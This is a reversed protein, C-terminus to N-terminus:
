IDIEKQTAVLEDYCFRGINQVFQPYERKSTERVVEAPVWGGPGVEGAYCM